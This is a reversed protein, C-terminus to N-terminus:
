GLLKSIAARESVILFGTLVTIMVVPPELLGTGGMLFVHILLINVIIPVLILLGIKRTKPIAVLIGGAIELVKVFALYGSGYMAGMFAAMPSGEPPSPMPIFQLFFNFGFVLFLLGLCAGALTPLKEKM